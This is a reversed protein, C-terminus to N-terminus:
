KIPVIGAVKVEYISDGINKDWGRRQYEYKGDIIIGASFKPSDKINEKFKLFLYVPEGNGKEFSQSWEYDVAIPSVKKSISNGEDDLFVVNYPDTLGTIMYEVVKTEEKKTCSVLGIAVIIIVILLKKM